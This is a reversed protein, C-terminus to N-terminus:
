VGTAAPPSSRERGRLRDAVPSPIVVASRRPERREETEPEPGAPRGPEGARVSWFRDLVAPWGFRSANELGRERLRSRLAADDLVRAIAGPLAGDAGVDVVLGSEGSAVIDSPGGRDSVVVPLGSAQAELVVNGFTDTTSPFVFVDSSAYARALTEGSLFGCFAVRPHSRRRQLEELYPGDGVVGLGVDRGEALLRDFASFLVDINKERSVRGTYLIVQRADLGQTRWFDPDRREPGYRDLDVGRRLILIRTPDFGHEVLQRQYTESPVFLTDVQDYFWRMLRWALQEMAADDTLMRVYAPFDTHYIGVTPLGLLKAALLGSLGVPGPTSLILEDYREREIHEVIELFPPFAIKQQEYEPVSFEGVPRFNVLDLDVARASEDCTLVSLPLGERRAARGLTRITMAVGNVESFADTLWAKRGASRPSRAPVGFVGAVDDLFAVDKHQTKFAALYPAISLAVPGLSAITQLSDVLRGERAYQGLKRLFTYGLIHSVQCAHRFTHQDARPSPGPGDGDPGSSFMSSLEEVLTREVDSLKRLRRSRFFRSALGRLKSGFSVTTRGGPPTLLQQFMEGIISGRGAENVIRHRYYSYGIQYFCHALMVSTGHRGGPEHRGERLHALFEEVSATPPTVTHARGIYLGSHDDSGATFAKVWPEPGRPVIGHRDAMREILQPTLSNLVVSALECARPDRTGNIAEFSRFMLVLEEFQDVTLRDNVRFLPHAVSHVIGAQSLYDGLERIDQRLEQIRAFQVEDIGLALVHVKCRNEPFYTTVETSIFTGPLHAIELAGRICNHDSITVFDLGRARATRYIQEPEVFSEPSGIRRLIWESPRDSHKSHVHVDAISRRRHRTDM